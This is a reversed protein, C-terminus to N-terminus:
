DSLKYITITLVLYSSCYQCLSIVLFYTSIVPTRPHYAIIWGSATEPQSRLSSPLVPSSKSVLVYLCCPSIQSSLRILVSASVSYSSPTSVQSLLWVLVHIPPCGQSSILGALIM